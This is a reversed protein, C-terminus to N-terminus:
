REPNEPKKLSRVTRAKPRVIWAQDRVTSEEGESLGYHLLSNQMTETRPM